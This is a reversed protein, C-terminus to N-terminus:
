QAVAPENSRYPFVFLSILALLGGLAASVVGAAWISSSSIGFTREVSQLVAFWFAAALLGLSGGAFVAAPADRWEGRRRALGVGAIMGAAVVIIALPMLRPEMLNASAHGVPLQNLLRAALRLALAGAVGIAIRAGPRVRAVIRSLQERWLPSGSSALASSEPILVQEAPREIRVGIQRSGGNSDIVIRAVLPGDISEPLELEIPLDTQDITSFPRGDHEPGLRLWRTGAPEIRATCRLLRYGVNTIRLVQRTIGGGTATRVLLTEPHVDLEPASSGTAPVRALWDDLQDDPSRSAGALPVLDPRHIRRLYDALKGSTLEDRLAAWNQAALVLFDDWTRCQAGGTLLYPTSLKGPTSPSAVAATVPKPAVAVAHGGAAPANAAALAPAASAVTGAQKVRVQVSGLQIVDGAVLRRAQGALLRQQNVFTGGPTELDRISLEQGNATLAAQRGAMKRPSSGEQDVLNLGREGKLDNGVVTEGSDLAFLQGVARGRVVELSWCGPDAAKTATTKARSSSM